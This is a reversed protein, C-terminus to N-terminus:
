LFVVWVVWLGMMLLALGLRILASWGVGILMSGTSKLARRWDKMRLWEILFLLLIAALLGIIPTLFISVVIMTIISLAIVWWKVGQKAAGGAMLVNDILSGGIMIITNLVFIGITLGFQWATHSHNFGNAIAWILQAVWIVTLGPFFVLFLGFFGTLQGLIVIVLLSINLWTPM